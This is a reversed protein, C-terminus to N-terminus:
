SLSSKSLLPDTKTITTKKERNIKYFDHSIRVLYFVVVTSLPLSVLLFYKAIEPYYLLIIAIALGIKWAIGAGIAERILMKKMETKESTDKTSETLDRPNYPM